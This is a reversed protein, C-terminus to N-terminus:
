RAVENGTEWEGSLLRRLLPPRAAPPAAPTPPGGPAGAAVAALVPEPAPRETVVKAAPAEPERDRHREQRLQLKKRRDKKAAAVELGAPGLQPTGCWTCTILLGVRVSRKFARGCAKNTCTAGVTRRGPARAGPGVEGVAAQEGV